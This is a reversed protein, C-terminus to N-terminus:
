FSRALSVAIDSFLYFLGTVTLSTPPDPPLRKNQRVAHSGYKSCIKYIRDAISTRFDDLKGSEHLCRIITRTHGTKPGNTDNVSEPLMKISALEMLSEELRRLTGLNRIVTAPDDKELSLAVDTLLAEDEASFFRSFVGFVEHHKERVAVQPLAGILRRMHSFVESKPGSKAFIMAFDQMDEAFEDPTESCFCFPITRGLDHEIDQLRSVAHLIFNSAPTDCEDDVPCRTDFIVAQIGPNERLYELGEELNQRHSLEFGERSAEEAMERCFALHDDILLIAHKM